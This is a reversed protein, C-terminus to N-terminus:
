AERRTLYGILDSLQQRGAPDAALDDVAMMARRGYEALMAEAAEKAGCDVFIKRATEAQSPTIDSNGVIAQLQRKQSADALLWAQELLYTHKAERLDNSSSKGTKEEDGFVGLLDDALQFAIGCDYGLQNLKALEGQSARSLTAGCMIPCVFSYSATKYRAITMPGADGVGIAAEMDLLQGAAVEFTARRLLRAVDACAAPAFDSEFVLAHTESLLLDGALLASANAHHDIDSSARSLKSYRQKYQGGVNLVGHRVDDKDAIDDHILLALHLLEQAMAIQLIARYDRGGYMEYTLVTLYPRLRKGGAQSVHRIFQWMLSYSDDINAAQNIRAAFYAELSRNIDDRVTRSSHLQNPAM